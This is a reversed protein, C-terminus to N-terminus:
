QGGRWCDPSHCVCKLGSIRTRGHTAGSGDGRDTPLSVLLFWIFIVEFLSILEQMVNCKEEQNEPHTNIGYLVKFTMSVNIKM